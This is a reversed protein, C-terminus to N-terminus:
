KQRACIIEQDTAIKHLPIDWSQHSISVIEQCQHALGVLTTNSSQGSRSALSRDYFGGGMGIRNGDRDFAVLPVLILDLSWLPAITASRLQPEPIGFRNEQLVDGHRYEAFHLSNLTLPDIVPLFCAKNDKFAADIIHAPDIEGDNALYIGIRKASLFFDQRCLLDALQVAATHQQAATLARRKDRISNRIDGHNM